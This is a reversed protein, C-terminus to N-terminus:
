SYSSSCRAIKRGIEKRCDTIEVDEVFKSTADQVDISSPGYFIASRVSIIDASIIGVIKMPAIIVM